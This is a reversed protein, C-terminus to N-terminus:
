PVRSCTFFQLPLLFVLHFSEHSLTISLTPRFTSYTVSLVFELSNRRGWIIPFALSSSPFMTLFLQGLQRPIVVGCSLNLSFESKNQDKWDSYQKMWDKYQKEFDREEQQIALVAESSPDVASGTFM